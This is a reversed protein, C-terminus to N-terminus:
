RRVAAARRVDGACGRTARRPQRHRAGRLAFCIRDASADAPQGVGRARRARRSRRRHRRGRRDQAATADLADMRRGPRRGVVVARARDRGGVRPVLSGAGRHDPAVGLGAPAQGGDPGPRRRSPRLRQRPRGRVLHAVRVAPRRRQGLGSGIRHRRAARLRVPSRRGAPALAPRALRRQLVPGAGRGDGPLDVPQRGHGGRPACGPGAARRAGAPLPVGTTGQNSFDNNGTADRLIPHHGWYSGTFPVDTESVAGQTDPYDPPQGGWLYSADSVSGDSAVTFSM